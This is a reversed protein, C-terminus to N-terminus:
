GSKGGLLPKLRPYSESPLKIPEHMTLPREQRDLAKERSRYGRSLWHSRTNRSRLFVCDVHMRGVISRLLTLFFTGIAPIALIASVLLTGQQLWGVQAQQLMGRLIGFPWIGWMEIRLRPAASQSCAAPRASQRVVGAHVCTSRAEFCSRGRVGVRSRLGAQRQLALERGRARGGYRFWRRREHWQKQASSCANSSACSERSRCYPRLSIASPLVRGAWWTKYSICSCHPGDRQVLAADLEQEPITWCRCSRNQNGEPIVLWLPSLGEVRWSCGAQSM